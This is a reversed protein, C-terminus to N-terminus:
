SLRASKCEKMKASESEVKSEWGAIVTASESDIKCESASEIKYEQVWDKVKIRLHVKMLLSASESAGKWKWKWKHVKVKVQM